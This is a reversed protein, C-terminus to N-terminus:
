GHGQGRSVELFTTVRHTEARDARREERERPWKLTFCDPRYVRERERTWSQEEAEQSGSRNRTTHLEKNAKLSDQSARNMVSVGAKAKVVNAQM